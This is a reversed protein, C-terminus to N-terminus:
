SPALVPRTPINKGVRARPPRPLRPITEYGHSYSAAWQLIRRAALCGTDTGGFWGVLTEGSGAALDLRCVTTKETPFFSAPGRVLHLFTRRANMLRRSPGSDGPMGRSTGRTNGTGLYVNLRENPYVETRIWRMSARRWQGVCRPHSGAGANVSVCQWAPRLSRSGPDLQGPEGFLRAGGAPIM